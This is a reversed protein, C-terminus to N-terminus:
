HEESVLALSLCHVFSCWWHNGCGVPGEDPFLVWSHSFGTHSKMMKLGSCCRQYVVLRWPHTLLSSWCINGLLISSWCVYDNSFLSAWKLQYNNNDPCHRKNQGANGLQYFHLDYFIRRYKFPHSFILSCTNFFADQANKIFFM